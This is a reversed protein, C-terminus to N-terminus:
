CCGLSALQLLLAMSLLLVVRHLEFSFGLVDGNVYGLRSSSDRLIVTCIVLSSAYMLVATTATIHIYGYLVGPVSVLVLTLALLVVMNLAIKGRSMSNDYFVNALGNYPERRGYRLVIYMSEASVVYLLGLLPVMLWKPSINTLIVDISALSVVINLTIGMVGFSGKRPDKLVKSAEEGRKRSGILDMYDSFGDIHIGGTIAIHIM